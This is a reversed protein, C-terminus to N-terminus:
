YREQYKTNVTKFKLPQARERRLSGGGARGGAWQGVASAALGKRDSM